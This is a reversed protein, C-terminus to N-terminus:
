FAMNYYMTHLNVDNYLFLLLSHLLKWTEGWTFFLRYIFVECFRMSSIEKVVTCTYVTDINLCCYIGLICMMNWYKFYFLLFITFVKWFINICVPHRLGGLLLCMMTQPFVELRFLDIGSCILKVNM